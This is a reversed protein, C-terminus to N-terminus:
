QKNLLYIKLLGKLSLNEELIFQNECLPIILKSLGGTAIVSLNNEFGFEKKIKNIFGDVMLACGWVSGSIMSDATNSGVLKTPRELSVDSLQACSSSLADLSLKVGPAIICGCLQNKENIVTFTTATGMDVTIVPGKKISVAAVAAAVIDSGLLSPSEVRINLGTKVGSGIILPSLGFKKLANEFKRTLAPVVSLICAGEFNETNLKNMRFIESLYAAYEDSSRTKDSSLKCKFVLEKKEFVGLSISSNGIDATIIM